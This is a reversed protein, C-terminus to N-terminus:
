AQRCNQGGAEQYTTYLGGARATYILIFAALQRISGRSTSLYKLPNSRFTLMNCEMKNIANERVFHLPVSLAAHRM